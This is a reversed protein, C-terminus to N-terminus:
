NSWAIVVLHMPKVVRNDELVVPYLKSVFTNRSFFDNPDDPYGDTSKECLFQQAPDNNIFYPKLEFIKLSSIPEPPSPCYNNQNSCYNERATFFNTLFAKYNLGTPNLTNCIENFSQLGSIYNTGKLTRSITLVDLDKQFSINKQSFVNYAFSFTSFFIVLAFLLPILSRLDDGIPGIFGKQKKLM